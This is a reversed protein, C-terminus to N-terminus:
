KKWFHGTPDYYMVPNNKVYAFVNHSLLEGSIGGYSDANLFRGWEPNYYRANLYYLGTESDYLYGRYRYPNKEGVTDAQAGTISVMQGWTDYTYSVVVVGEEDILGMIDGQLNRVYVYEAGNLNMSILNDNADYTYYIEDTGDTEYTVYDGDLHYKTTVGGVTKETRIGDDNYAYAIDLGNGALAALQDGFAWSYTYGDYSLPNGIEDYTITKGDYATLKDTWNTDTYDYSIDNTPTGLTGTTYAHEEKKLLNGSTDYEYVMTQDLVENDVRILENLANYQYTITQGNETITQINGREDYTYSLTDGNNEMSAVRTTSSGNIGEEYTYRTPYTVAGIDLTREHVRGLPDYTYHVNNLRGKAYIDAMDAASLAVDSYSFQEMHGNLPDRGFISSGLATTGNSFDNMDSVSTTYTEGNVNLTVHLNNGDHEWTVSVFHWEEKAITENTTLLNGFTGSSTRYSIRVTDDSAMYVNFIEGHDAENAIIHRTVGSQKTNFWTSMTGASRDIGLDYVNKADESTSATYPSAYTNEEFQVNDFLVRDQDKVQSRVMVEIRATGEPVTFTQSIKEWKNEPIDKHESWYAGSIVNGNSDRARISLIPQSSGIRKAYASLTYTKSSNLTLPLTYTQVAVTNTNSGDPDADYSEISTSGDVGDNVERWEGSSGQWAQFRWNTTGDEFSSHSLLNTTSDFPAFTMKGKDDLEYVANQETPEKGESGKLEGILPFYETNPIDVFARSYAVNRPRNDKDFTYNTLYHENGIQEAFRSLNNNDDYAYRMTDGNSQKITSLRDALDYLYRYSIGNVLDEHYGLNGNADYDYTFTTDGDHTLAKLRDLDDYEYGITQNNGYEKEMLQGTHIQTGNDNQVDYRKTILAQNGISVGTKNGFEDYEFSYTANNQTITKIQDNEYTYNNTYTKNTAQDTKSVSTMRSLTDYDYSTSGSADTVSVLEDKDENWTSTVEAGTPDTISAVYNGSSTYSSQSRIFLDNEVGVVAKIPNGNADHDFHYVVNHSSTAKEINRKDDYDYKFKNGKPDISETLDNNTYKFESNQENLDHTSLVNGDDDYQYSTSFTEKYLQLGDFYATNENDYYQAYVSISDYDNKAVIVGANYQWDSSDENFEIREWQSTNDARLGIGLAFRRDSSIPVSDGKAWGGLVFVDGKKGSVDLHQVINKNKDHKGNIKFVKSDLTKPYDGVTTLKDNGDSQSNKAWYTPTGSGYRFDANELLNYRNAIHGEEMQLADFYATGTQEIMAARAYVKNTAADEPLTFSVEHREWGKTGTTLESVHHSNNGNRDEYTVFLGAGKGVEDPIGDIKVYGSFTYTKGRELHLVSEFHARSYNNTKEIKLAQDGIYSEETTFSHNATSGSWNRPYWYDETAIRHNRLYNVVTKQLKSQSALKNKDGGEEFFTNYQAHGEDDKMSVTHGYNNFQYINKREKSDTFTTVNYGYEVNLYNGRTGNTHKEQINKVRYPSTGYYSYAMQFGDFNTALKLNGTSSDYSYTSVEGDPYTIKKLRNNSDYAYSTKRGSPDVISKLTGNSDTNLTIERGSGDKVKILTTDDNAYYLTTKNGNRDKIYKLRGNQLFSLQNDKKDKIQYRESSSDKDITMTLDLGSKDKYTDTSEKEFIHNTGDEDTYRYYDEGTEKQIRQSLNLQWGSGYGMDENRENSNFVHNITVPTRNGGMSIDNHIFVLNGNYDNVYGTGARGVDQSHYTWYNELGSNNVYYFTVQPRGEKYAGSVDSSFFEMYGSLEDNNKLMLGYNNESSYWDKVIDTINWNFGTGISGDMIQYDEISEFNSDPQNNWTINDSGWDGLVKHVNVQANSTNDLILHLSLYADTILDGASLMPLDFSIFTRNKKSYAGNGTKLIFSEYYNSTPYGESVHADYIKSRDLSTSLTPDITIPYVREESNLWDQSPTKTYTYGGDGTEQLKVQIERSEAGNADFMFPTGIKFVLQDTNEEDYFLVSGDEQLEPIINKVNLQYNFAPNNVKKNVIIYEKIDKGIVSYSMDINPYIGKYDIASNVNPLTKIKKNKTLSDLFKPNKEQIHGRHKQTQELDWSVEYPGKKVSVLNQKKNASHTAFQVNFDNRKNEFVRQNNGNVKEVLTNNIDVWQDGEKFHVPGPYIAAEYSHDDKLFHKVNEERKEYLEGIITAETHQKEKEYIEGIMTEEISQEEIGSKKSNNAWASLPYVLVSQLLLCFIVLGIIYGNKRKLVIM